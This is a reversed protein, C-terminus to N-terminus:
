YLLRASSYIACVDSTYVSEFFALVVYLSQWLGPDQELVEEDDWLEEFVVMATPVFLAIATCEGSLNNAFATALIIVLFSPFMDSLDCALMLSVDTLCKVALQVLSIVLPVIFTVAMSAVLESPM